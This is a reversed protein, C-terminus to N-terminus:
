IQRLMIAVIQRPFRKSQLKGTILLHCARLWVTALMCMCVAVPNQFAAVTIRLSHWCVNFTMKSAVPLICISHRCYSNAIRIGTANHTEVEIGGTLYMNNEIYTMTKMGKKRNHYPM